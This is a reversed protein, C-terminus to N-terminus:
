IQPTRREPQANYAKVAERTGFWAEKLMNPITRSEIGERCAARFREYVENIIKTETIVADIDRPEHFGECDGDALCIGCLGSEVDDREWKCPAEWTCLLWFGETELRPDTLRLGDFEIASVDEPTSQPMLHIEM